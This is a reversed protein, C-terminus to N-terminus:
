HRCDSARIAYQLIEQVTAHGKVSEVGCNSNAIAVLKDAM